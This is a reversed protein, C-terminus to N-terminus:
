DIPPVKKFLLDRYGVSGHTKTAFRQKCSLVISVGAYPQVRMTHDDIFEILPEMGIRSRSIEKLIAIEADRMAGVDPFELYLTAMGTLKAKLDLQDLFQSVEFAMSQFADSM